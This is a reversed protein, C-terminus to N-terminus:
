HLRTWGFFVVNTLSFKVRVQALEDYKITNEDRFFLRLENVNLSTRKFM